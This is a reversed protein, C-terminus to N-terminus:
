SKLSLINMFYLSCYTTKVLDQLIKLKGLVVSHGLHLDPATPDFGLKITFITDGELLSAFSDEPIVEDVGRMLNSILDQKKM